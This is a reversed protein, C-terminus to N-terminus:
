DVSMDYDLSGGLNSLPASNEGEGGNTIDRLIQFIPSSIGFQDDSIIVNESFVNGDVSAGLFAAPYRNNSMVIKKHGIGMDSMVADNVIMHDHSISCGEGSMDFNFVMGDQSSQNTDM